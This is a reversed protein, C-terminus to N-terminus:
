KRTTKKLQAMTERAVNVLATDVTHRIDLEADIASAAAGPAAVPANGGLVDGASGFLQSMSSMASMRPDFLSTGALPGLSGGFRSILMPNLLGLGSFRTYLSGAFVALHIASRLGFGGGSTTKVSDSFAPAAAADAVPYLGYDLTVQHVARATQHRSVKRLMSGVTGPKSTKIDAIEAYLVYDCEMRAAKSQAEAVSHGSLTLAQYPAKHFASALQQRLVRTPLQHTSKDVPELVGIRIAGAPKPAATSTGDATSGVLAESLGGDGAEPNGMLADNSMVETYGGPAIFLAADLTTLDFATVEMSSTDVEQEDGEGIKTTTTMGIPFGLRADGNTRSEVQDVCRDAARAIVPRTAPAVLRRTIAPFDVYWGDVEVTLAGKDCASASATRTMITTIHRAERGFVQKREGTDSVTTTVTVTGGKSSETLGATVQMPDTGPAAAAAVDRRKTVLYTRATPNVVLTQGLDGQDISIVGAFEVRQREGKVYTTSASVQAGSTYKTRIKVDTPAPAQTPAPAATKAPAKKQAPRTSSSQGLVTGGLAAVLAMLVLLRATVARLM